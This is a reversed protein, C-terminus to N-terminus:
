RRGKSNNGLGAPPPCLAVRDNSTIKGAVAAVTANCKIVKVPIAQFGSGVQKYIFQKGTGECLATVPIMVGDKVQELEIEVSARMGPRLREEKDKLEVRATFSQKGPVEGQWWRNERALNDIEKVVGPFSSEPLSAVTVTAKQGKKLAEIENENIDCVVRMISSNVIDAIHTDERVSVGPKPTEQWRGWMGFLLFGDTPAKIETNTLDTQADEMELLVREINRLAQQESEMRRLETTALTEGAAALEMKRLEELNASSKETDALNRQAKELLFQQNNVEDEAAEAEIRPILREEALRQKKALKAKAAELEVERFQLEGRAKELSEAQQTQALKLAEQAKTLATRAGIVEAEGEEQVSRVATEAEALKATQQRLREETEAPNFKVVVDGAKVKAGDAACWIIINSDGPLKCNLPVTEAAELVGSVRITTSFDAPKVPVTPIHQRPGASKALNFYLLGAIVAIAAAILLAPTLAKRGRM